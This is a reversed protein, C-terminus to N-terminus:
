RRIYGEWYALPCNYELVPRINHMNNGKAARGIAEQKHYDHSAHSNTEYLDRCHYWCTCLSM